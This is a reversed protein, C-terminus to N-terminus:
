REKWNFPEPVKLTMADFGRGVYCKSQRFGDYLTLGPAVVSDEGVHQVLAPVHIYYPKGIWILADRVIADDGHKCGLDDPRLGPEAKKLYALINAATNHSYTVAQTSLFRDPTQELLLAKYVDYAANFAGGNMFWQIVTQFREFHPLYQALYPVFNRCIEVDDQVITVPGGLQVGVTFADIACMLAGRRNSDGVIVVIAGQKQLQTHLADVNRDPHKMIVIEPSTM